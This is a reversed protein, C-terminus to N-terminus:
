KQAVALQKQDTEIVALELKQGVRVKHSVEASLTQGDRAVEVRVPYTYDKGAVKLPIRFRRSTGTLTMRQDVLYVVANEPVTLILLASM